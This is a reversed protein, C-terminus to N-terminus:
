RSAATKKEKMPKKLSNPMSVADAIPPQIPRLRRAGVGSERRASELRLSAKGSFLAASILDIRTSIHSLRPRTIPSYAMEVIDM